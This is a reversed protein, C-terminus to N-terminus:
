SRHDTVEGDIEVAVQHQGPSVDILDDVALGDPYQSDSYTLRREDGSVPAHHRFELAVIGDEDTDEHAQALVAWRFQSSSAITITPRPPGIPVDGPQTRPPPLHPKCRGGLSRPQGHRWCGLLAQSCLVLLM